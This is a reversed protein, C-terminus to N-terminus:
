QKYKAIFDSCIGLVNKLDWKYNDPMVAISDNPPQIKPHAWVFGQSTITVDDEQHWFYNISKLQVWEELRKFEQIAEVNKCHVWLKLNNEIIWDLDIKYQPKDHGLFWEGDIFRVDIECDYGLSMAKEVYEPLNEYQPYKGDVNGRHSILRM